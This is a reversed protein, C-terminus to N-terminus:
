YKRILWALGATESWHNKLVVGLMGREKALKVVEFADWQRAYSDPGHHAHLDIAGILAPDTLKQDVSPRPNRNKYADWHTKLATQLAPPPAAAHLVSVAAVVAVACSVSVLLRMTRMMAM